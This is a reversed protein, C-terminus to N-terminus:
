ILKNFKELNPKSWIPINGIRSLISRVSTTNEETIPEDLLVTLLEKHKKIYNKDPEYVKLWARYIEWAYKNNKIRAKVEEESSLFEVSPVDKIKIKLDGYAVENSLTMITDFVDKDNLM